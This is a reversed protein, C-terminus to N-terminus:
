SKEFAAMAARDSPTTNLRILALAARVLADPSPTGAPQSAKVSLLQVTSKEQVAVNRQERGSLFGPPAGPIKRM